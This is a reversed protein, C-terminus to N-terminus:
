SPRLAELPKISTQNNAFFGCLSVVVVVGFFVVAFM